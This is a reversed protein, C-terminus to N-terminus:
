KEYAASLSVSKESVVIVCLCSLSAKPSVLAMRGSPLPGVSGSHGSCQHLFFFELPVVEMGLSAGELLGVAKIGVAWILWGNVLIARLVVKEWAEVCWLFGM